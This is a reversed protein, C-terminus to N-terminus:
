FESLFQEEGKNTQVSINARRDGLTVGGCKHDDGYFKLWETLLYVSDMM